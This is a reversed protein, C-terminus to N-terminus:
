FLEIGILKKAEVRARLHRLEGYCWVRLQQFGSNGRGTTARQGKFMPEIADSVEFRCSAPRGMLWGAM